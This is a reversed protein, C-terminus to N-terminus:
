KLLEAIKDLLAKPEFPKIIYAEAGVEEGTKKDSEQVRATFLIIPIHKYKEDFKLLRCVKYGDMKPLMIDLIILDIPQKELIKLGEEGDSVVFCEYGAKELNYNVLKSIHKDDEVILIKEHM